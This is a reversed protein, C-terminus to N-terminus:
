RYWRSLKHESVGLFHATQIGWNIATQRVIGRKEWRRADVHVTADVLQPWSLKRLAQSLVVDEMLPIPQFGGVQDYLDRHVFIAQDGFPLGRMRIRTANGFEIWRYKGAENEIRQRLGGWFRKHPTPSRHSRNELARCIQDLSDDGLWNDAHLFMLMAHSALHSGERLQNGRGRSTVIVDAGCSKAVEVTADHSGGDAVIVQSAGNNQASRIARELKAEENLAAIVISFDSPSM